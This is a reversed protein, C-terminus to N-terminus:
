EHEDEEHDFGAPRPVRTFRLWSATSEAVYLIALVIATVLYGTVLSGTVLLVYGLVLRGDWGGGAVSLWAPPAVGQHRLRYVTDYHHFALVAVLAFCMPVARPAALVAFSLLSGYELLRLLPAVLWVFRGAHTRGSAVGGVLVLWAVAGGLAADSVRDGGRALVVPVAAAALVTLVAAPVSVASGLFRGLARALPGDDRYALLRRQSAPAATGTAAVASM